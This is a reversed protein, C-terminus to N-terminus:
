LSSELGGCILDCFATIFVTNTFTILKPTISQSLRASTNGPIASLHKQAHTLSCFRLNTTAAGGNQEHRTLETNDTTFIPVDDYFKRKNHSPM